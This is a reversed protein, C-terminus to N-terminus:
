VRVLLAGPLVQADISSVSMTEGDVQMTVPLRSAIHVTTARYFSAEPASTHLGKQMVPLMRLARLLPVYSIACVDFCGDRPDAQPNVRFGAGYTPGNTVAMLVYRKETTHEPPDDDLRYQLWPCRQYGFLLQRLSASYYLRIGSMLPLKKMRNAVEAIDADLGVSFGNAFYHGNVIGADVSQLRGHLARELAEAPERPLGLTNCAFDNGSGAPIIGLPVRRGAALVGNVVANVSGDGGVVIIARGDQAAQRARERADAADHTEVYEADVTALRQHVLYRHQQMNGRNAAQNLIVLSSVSSVVEATEGMITSRQMKRKRNLITDYAM